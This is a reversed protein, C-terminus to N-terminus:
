ATAKRRHNILLLGSTGLILFVATGPEPTIIATPTPRAFVPDDQVFAEASDRVADNFVGVRATGVDDALTALFSDHNGGRSRKEWLVPAFNCQDILTEVRDIVLTRASSSDGPIAMGSATESFSEIGALCPLAWALLGLVATTVGITPKQRMTDGTQMGAALTRTGPGIFTWPFCVIGLAAILFRIAHSGIFDAKAPPDPRLV